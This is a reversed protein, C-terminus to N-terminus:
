STRYNRLRDGGPCLGAAIHLASADRYDHMRDNGREMAQASAKRWGPLTAGTDDIDFLFM